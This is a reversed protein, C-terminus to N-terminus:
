DPRTAIPLKRRHVVVEITLALAATRVASCLAEKQVSAVDLIQAETPDVVKGAIVDFACGSRAHHLEAMVQGADFGANAILTRIPAEMANVLIHYAAREEVESSQTLMHQLNSQCALFAVGGGPVVGEAIAGRLALAARQAMDVRSHIEPETVGGVRLIAAGGLLRGVREQLRKQVEPDDALCAKQRLAALHARVRYPDGKGGIIGTNNSDAWVRRAQGLEHPQIQSLTDGAANLFPRGGTLVALDEMAAAQDVTNLGPTKVAIVQMKLSDRNALLLALASPSLERAIILLASLGRKGAAMVVPLLQDPDTIELDSILIASNQMRTIMRARDRIMEQSHIGGSWYSGEVFERELSRGRGSQINLAGEPGIVNFIEALMQAMEPDYCVTRAACALLAASELPMVMSSLKDLILQMGQELHYRLRMPSSGAVIMKVGQNFISEFLVAATATGDGVQEHLRWLMGRLLMAGTNEDRDALEIIRRAIVAGNDLLEPGRKDGVRQMGVLRPCPGLTPRIVNVLEAIGKQMQRYTTPQSVIGPTQHVLHPSTM